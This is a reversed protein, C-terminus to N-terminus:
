YPNSNPSKQEVLDDSLADWEAKFEPDKLFENLTERFNKGTRNPIPAKCSSKQKRECM